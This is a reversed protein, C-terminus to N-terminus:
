SVASGQEAPLNRTAANRRRLARELRRTVLIPLFMRIRAASTLENLDVDYRRSLEEVSIGFEAALRDLDGSRGRAEQSSGDAM